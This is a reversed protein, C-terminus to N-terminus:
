LGLYQAANIINSPNSYPTVLYHILSARYDKAVM